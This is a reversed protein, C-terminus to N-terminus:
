SVLTQTALVYKPWKLFLSTRRMSSANKKMWRATKVDPAPPNVNLALWDNVLKDVKATESGTFTRVKM